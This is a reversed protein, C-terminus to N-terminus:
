DGAGTLWAVAGRNEVTPKEVAPKGVAATEVAATEVAPKGCRCPM